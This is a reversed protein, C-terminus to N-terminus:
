LLHLLLLRPNGDSVCESRVVHQCVPSSTRCRNSSRVVDINSLFSFFFHSISFYDVSRDQLPWSLLSRLERLCNDLINGRSVWPVFLFLGTFVDLRQQQKSSRNIDDDTSAQGARPPHSDAPPSASSASARVRVCVWARASACVWARHCAIVILTSEFLCCYLCCIASSRKRERLCSFHPSSILESTRLEAFERAVGVFVSCRSRHTPEHDFSFIQGTSFRVGDRRDSLAATREATGSISTSISIEELRGADSLFWVRWLWVTCGVHSGGAEM